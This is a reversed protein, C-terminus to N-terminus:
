AGLGFWALGFFGGFGRFEMGWRIWVGDYIRLGGGQAKM